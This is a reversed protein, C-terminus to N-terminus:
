GSRGSGAAPWAAVPSRWLVPASLRTGARNVGYAGGAGGPLSHAALVLGIALARVGDLAPDYKFRMGVM